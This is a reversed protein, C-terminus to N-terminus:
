ISHSQVARGGVLVLLILGCMVQVATMASQFRATDTERGSGAEGSFRVVHEIEHYRVTTMPLRASLRAFMSQLAPRLVRRFDPPELSVDSTTVRCEMRLSGGTEESVLAALVSEANTIEELVGSGDERVHQAVNERLSVFDYRSGQVACAVAADPLMLTRAMEESAWDVDDFFGQALEDLRWWTPVALHVVIFAASFQAPFEECALSANVPAANWPRRVYRPHCKWVCALAGPVVLPVLLANAPGTMGAAVCPNVALLSVLPPSYEPLTMSVDDAHTLCTANSSHRVRVIRVTLAGARLYPRLRAPDALVYLSLPARVHVWDSPRSACAVCGPRPHEWFQRSGDLTAGVAACPLYGGDFVTHRECAAHVCVLPVVMDWAAGAPASLRMHWSRSALDYRVIGDAVRLQGQCVCLCALSVLWVARM